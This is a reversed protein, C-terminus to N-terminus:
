RDESADHGEVPCYLANPEVRFVRNFRARFNELAATAALEVLQPEDYHARLRNFLDDSVDVPVACMADALELAVREAETYHPSIGYNPLAAIKEDSIGADSGGAANIDV